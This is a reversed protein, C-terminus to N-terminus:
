SLSAKQLEKALAFWASEVKKVQKPDSLLDVSSNGKTKKKYEKIGKEINSVVDNISKKMKPAAENTKMAIYADAVPNETSM